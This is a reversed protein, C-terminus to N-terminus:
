RIIVTLGLKGIQLIGGAFHRKVSDAVGPPVDPTSHRVVPMADIPNM